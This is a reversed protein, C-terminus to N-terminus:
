LNEEVVQNQYFTFKKFAKYTPTPDPKEMEPHPEEFFKKYVTLVNGEIVAYYYNGAGAYYSQIGLAANEPIDLSAYYSKSVETGGVDEVLFLSDTTASTYLYLRAMPMGQENDGQYLAKFSVTARSLDLPVPAPEQPEEEVLEGKTEETTPAAPTSNSEENNCAMVLMLLFCGGIIQTIKKM